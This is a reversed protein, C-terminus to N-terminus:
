KKDQLQFAQNIKKIIDASPGQWGDWSSLATDFKKRVGVIKAPNETGILWEGSYEQSLSLADAAKNWAAITGDVDTIMGGVDTIMNAKVAPEGFLSEWALEFMRKPIREMITDQLIDNMSEKILQKLQSRTIKM